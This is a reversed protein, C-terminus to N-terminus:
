LVEGDTSRLLLGGARVHALVAPDSRAISSKPSPRFWEFSVVPVTVSVEVKEIEGPGKIIALMAPFPDAWPEPPYWQSQMTGDCDDTARCALFAPTTGEDVDVTAIAEHCKECVYLNKRGWSRGSPKPQRAADYEASAIVLCGAPNVALFEILEEVADTTALANPLSPDFLTRIMREAVPGADYIRWTVGSTRSEGLSEIVFDHTSKKAQEVAGLDSADAVGAPVVCVDVDPKKDYLSRPAGKPRRRSM